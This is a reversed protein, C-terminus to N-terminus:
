LRACGFGIWPRRRRPRLRSACTVHAPTRGFLKQLRAQKAAITRHQDVEWVPIHALAPLRYARTDWGAGLNLLAGFRGDVISLAEDIRRKRCM